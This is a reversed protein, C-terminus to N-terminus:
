SCLCRPFLGEAIKATLSWEGSYVQDIEVNFPILYNATENVELGPTCYNMTLEKRNSEAREAGMYVGTHKGEGM